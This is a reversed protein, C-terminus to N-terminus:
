DSGRHEIRWEQRQYEWRPAAAQATQGSITASM